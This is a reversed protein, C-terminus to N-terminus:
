WASVRSKSSLHSRQLFSTGTQVINYSKTDTEHPYIVLTRRQYGQKGQDTHEHPTNKRGMQRPELFFAPLSHHVALRRVDKRRRSQRLAPIRVILPRCGFVSQRHHKRLESLTEWVASCACSPHWCSWSWEVRHHSARPKIEPTRRVLPAQPLATVSTLHPVWKTCTSASRHM